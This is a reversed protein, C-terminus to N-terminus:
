ETAYENMRSIVKQHEKKSEAKHWREEDMKVDYTSVMEKMKPEVESIRIQANYLRKLAETKDRKFGECL